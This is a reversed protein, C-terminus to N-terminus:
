SLIDETFTVYKGKFHACQLNRSNITNFNIVFYRPLPLIIKKNFKLLSYIFLYEILM